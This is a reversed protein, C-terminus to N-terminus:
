DQRYLLATVRRLNPMNLGVSHRVPRTFEVVRWFVGMVRPRHQAKMKQWRYAIGFYGTAHVRLGKQTLRYTADYLRHYHKKGGALEENRKAEEGKYSWDRGGPVHSYDHHQHIATVVRSADVVAARQAGAKWVLWNDFGARGLAFPLLHGYFGRPFVFYDIYAPGRLDGEQQARDALSQTWNRRGFDLPASVDVDWCQGVMLFRRKRRSVKEVATMFDDLLIIDCNVYCVINHSAMRQAKGFVDDLVPTCYENRVVEPVHQVGLEQAVEATGEEDGFLIIQCSPSLRTWSGIANRQITGIHGRFPKPVAFFTIM